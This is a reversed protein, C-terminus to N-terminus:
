SHYLSWAGILVLICNVVRKIKLFTIYRRHHAEMSLREVSRKLNDKTKNEKDQKEKDLSSLYDQLQHTAKNAFTIGGVIASLAVLIKRGQLKVDIPAIPDQAEILHSLIRDMIIYNILFPLSLEAAGFGAVIPDEKTQEIVENYAIKTQGIMENVYSSVSDIVNQIHGSFCVAYSWLYGWVKHSVLRPPPPTLDVSGISDDDPFYVM